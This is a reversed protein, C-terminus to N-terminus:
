GLSPEYLRALIVISGGAVVLLAMAARWFPMNPGVVLEGIMFPHLAGCSISCRYRFKGARDAVFTAQATKGPEAEINVDYGDIYIGHAVDESSLKITVQDGVDVRVRSPEFAFARASLEIQHEAQARAGTPLPILLVAAALAATVGIAVTTRKRDRFM